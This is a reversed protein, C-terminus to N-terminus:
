MPSLEETKPRFDTRQFNSLVSNGDKEFQFFFDSIKKPREVSNPGLFNFLEATKAFM